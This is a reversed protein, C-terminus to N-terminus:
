KDNVGYIACSTPTEWLKVSHLRLGTGFADNFQGDLEKFIYEAVNEATSTFPVIVPKHGESTKFFDLLEVDKDWVMFAHDLKDHIFSNAIRKIDAFDIVMGEESAGSENVLDGEVCIEAKYRHGHLGKCVSRHNMVRHGMDWQIIKVIKM